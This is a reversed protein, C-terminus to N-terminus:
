LTLHIKGRWAKSRKELAVELDFVMPPESDSARFDSHCWAINVRQREGSAGGERKSRSQGSAVNETGRFPTFMSEYHSTFANQRFITKSLCVRWRVSPVGLVQKSSWPVPVLTTRAIIPFRRFPASSERCYTQMDVLVATRYGLPLRSLRDPSVDKFVKCMSWSSVHRHLSGNFSSM